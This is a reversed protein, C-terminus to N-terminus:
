AHSTSRTLRETSQAPTQIYPASAAGTKGRGPSMAQGSYRGEVYPSLYLTKDRHLLLYPSLRLEVHLFLPIASEQERRGTRLTDEGAAFPIRFGEEHDQPNFRDRAEGSLDEQASVKVFPIGEACVGECFM